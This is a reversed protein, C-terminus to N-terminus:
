ADFGTDGHQCSDSLDTGPLGDVGIKVKKEQSPINNPTYVRMTNRTSAIFKHVEYLVELNNWTGNVIELVLCHVGNPCDM